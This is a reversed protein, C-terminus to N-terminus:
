VKPPPPNRFIGTATLLVRDEALIRGSIFTLTRTIKEVTAETHIWEGARAAAIMNCSLQVTAVAGEHGMARAASSGLTVDILSMLMGGHTTGLPNLQHPALRVGLQVSRELVRQYIPGIHDMFSSGESRLTFGDPIPQASAENM